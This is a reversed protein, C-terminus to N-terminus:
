SNKSFATKYIHVFFSFRSSVVWDSSAGKKNSKNKKEDKRPMVPKPVTPLSLSPPLPSPAPIPPTSLPPISVPQPTAVTIPTVPAPVVPIPATPTPTHLPTPIPYHQSDAITAQTNLVTPPVTHMLVSAPLVGHASTTTISAVVGPTTGSSTTITPLQTIPATEGISASFTDSVLPQATNICQQTISAADTIKEEVNQSPLFKFKVLLDGLPGGVTTRVSIWEELKHASLYVKDLNYESTGIIGPRSMDENYVEFYLTSMSKDTVHCSLTEHYQPEPGSVSRTKYKESPSLSCSIYTKTSPFGNLALGQLCVLEIKLTGLSM